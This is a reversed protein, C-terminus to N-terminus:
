ADRLAGLVAGDFSPLALKASAKAELVRARAASQNAQWNLVSGLGYFNTSSIYPDRAVGISGAPIGIAIDPYLQATQVGINATAAALEREAQRVDPRRKLLAAGDGIPLPRTLRPPSVCTELDRAFSASLKGTLTALRFLANRRAAELSPIVGARRRRRGPPQADIQGDRGVASGAGLELSSTRSSSLVVSPVRM